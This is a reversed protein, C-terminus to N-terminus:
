GRVLARMLLSWVTAPVLLGVTAFPGIVFLGLVGMLAAGALRELVLPHPEYPTPIFAIGAVVLVDGIVMVTVALLVTVGIWMAVGSARVAKPGLLAGGLTGAVLMALGLGTQGPDGASPRPEAPLLVMMGVAVALAVLCGVAAGLERPPILSERRVPTAMTLTASM